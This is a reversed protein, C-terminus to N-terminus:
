VILCWRRVNENATWKDKARTKLYTQHRIRSTTDYIPLGNQTFHMKKM